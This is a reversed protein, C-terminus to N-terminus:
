DRSQDHRPVVLVKEGQLDKQDQPSLSPIGDNYIDEEVISAPRGRTNM